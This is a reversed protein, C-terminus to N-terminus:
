TSGSNQGNPRRLGESATDDGHPRSRRRIAEFFAVAEDDSLDDISTEQRPQLPRARRLLQDVPLERRQEVRRRPLDGSM